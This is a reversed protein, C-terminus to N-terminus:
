LVEEFTKGVVVLSGEQYVPHGEPIPEQRDYGQPDMYGFLIFM